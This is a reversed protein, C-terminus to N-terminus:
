LRRDSSQLFLQRVKRAFVIRICNRTEVWRHSHSTALQQCHSHYHQQAEQRTPLWDPLSLSPWQAGEEQKSPFTRVCPPLFLSQIASAAAVLSSWFERWAVATTTNLQHQNYNYHRCCMCITHQQSAAEKLCQFWYSGSCSSSFFFLLLSTSSPVTLGCWRSKLTWGSYLYLSLVIYVYV